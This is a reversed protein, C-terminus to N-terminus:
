ENEIEELVQQLQKLHTQLVDKWVTKDQETKAKRYYALTQAIDDSIRSAMRKHVPESQLEPLVDGRAKAIEMRLQKVSWIKHANGEQGNGHEAAELWQAQENESLGSVVEHHGHSLNERRRYFEVHRSVYVWNTVTQESKGLVEALESVKGYNNDVGYALYDGIIWQYATDIQLLTQGFVEFEEESVDGVFELGVRHIRIHSVELSGDERKVIGSPSIVGFDDPLEMPDDSEDYLSQPPADDFVGRKKIEIKKKAM